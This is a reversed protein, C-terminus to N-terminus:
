YCSKSRIVHSRLCSSLCFIRSSKLKSQNASSAVTNYYFKQRKEPTISDEDLLENGQLSRISTATENPQKGNASNRIDEPVDELKLM